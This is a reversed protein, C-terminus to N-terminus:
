LAMDTLLPMPFSKDVMNSSLNIFNRSVDHGSESLWSPKVLFLVSTRGHKSLASLKM